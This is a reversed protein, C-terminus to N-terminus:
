CLVTIAICTAHTNRIEASGRIGVWRVGPNSRVWNLFWQLLYLIYSLTILHETKKTFRITIKLNTQQIVTIIFKILNSVVVIAYRLLIYIQNWTWGKDVVICARLWSSCPPLEGGLIKTQGRWIFKVQVGSTWSLFFFRHIINCVEM